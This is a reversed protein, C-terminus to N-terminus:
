YYGWGYAKYISKPDYIRGRKFTLDVKRIDKMQLLPNGDILIMNATKGAEITGSKDLNGTVQAPWYTASRLVDSNAIGCESYIELEHQLIGGDTGAIIINGNDYIAKLIRKMHAYSQQYQKSLSDTDIYGGTMVERKIDPPLFSALPQYAANIKGPKYTYMRELLSMTPDIVTERDKLLKMFALFVNGKMDITHGYRGPIFFKNMSRTDVTDTLFNLAIMNLQNIEDYGLYLAQRAVTRAPIQGCVRMGLEHAKDALPTVWDRYISGHLVIQKCSDKHYQEIQALGQELTEIIGVTPVTQENALDLIGSFVSIDPGPLSDAAMMRQAKRLAVNNNGMDRFNTVGQALMFPGDEPLFHGHSEWLGPMLFKGTGDIVTYNSPIIVTGAPGVKEITDGRVLVTRNTATRGSDAEFLTVNKIAFGSPPRKMSEAAVKNLFAFTFQNQISLLTDVLDEHDAEIISVGDSVAAFLRNDQHVWRYIPAHGGGAISILDLQTVRNTTGRMQYSVLKKVERTGAPLITTQKRGTYRLVNLLLEIEGPLSNLGSYIENSFTASGKEIGNKWYAKGDKVEFSENVPAKYYDFGTIYQTSLLGLSNVTIKSLISPGKGADNYELFYGYETPSDKWRLHRGTFQGHQVVSYYVTDAAMSGTSVMMVIVLCAVLSKYM